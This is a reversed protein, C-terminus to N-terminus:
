KVRHFVAQGKYYDEFVNQLEEQRNDALLRKIQELDKDTIDEVEFDWLEESWPDAPLCRVFVATGVIKQIPFDRNKTKILFNVPLKLPLGNENVGVCFFGDNSLKVFEAPDDKGTFNKVCASRYKEKSEVIRLPTGVEKVAIKM